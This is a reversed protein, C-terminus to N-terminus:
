LSIKKELIRRLNGLAGAEIQRVREASIKLEGALEKLTKTKSGQEKKLWRESIIVQSREDLNQIASKLLSIEYSSEQSDAVLSAPDSNESALFDIPGFSDCSGELPADTCVLRNNM